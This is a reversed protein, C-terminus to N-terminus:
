LLREEECSRRLAAIASPGAKCCGGAVVGGYVWEGDERRLELAMKVNQTLLKAWQQEDMGDPNSWSRTVVDYVAGGDPDPAFTLVLKRLQLLSACLVLWPSLPSPLSAIANSLPQILIDLHTPSTCNIGIASPTAYTVGAPSPGFTAEVIAEAMAPLELDRYEVDPIAPEGAKNLPFVYAIYFPKSFSRGEDFLAVARRIARAEHLNPTTEFAIMAIKDFEASTAFHELRALHWAVLQDERPDLTPVVRDHPLPIAAAASDSYALQFPSSEGFPLPYLGTYEQAPQLQAGFPGLSLAALPLLRPSYSPSTPTFTATVLPIASVMTKLATAIDVPTYATKESPLFLPLSSQYSHITLRPAFPLSSSQM